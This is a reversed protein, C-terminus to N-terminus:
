ADPPRRKRRRDERGRELWRRRLRERERQRESRARESLLADGMAPTLRGAIHDREAGDREAQSRWVRTPRRRDSRVRWSPKV